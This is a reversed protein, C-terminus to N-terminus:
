RRSLVVVPITRDVDAQYDGFRPLAAVMAAFVREREADAPVSAVAAFRETGVEVVVESNASLNGFWIPDTPSGGASAMVVHRDGDLHYTLPTTRATGTRAGTTTLLLMPNGEFPGGCSGGNSRFEDIVSQNFALLEERSMGMM